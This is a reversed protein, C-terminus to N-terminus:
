PEDFADTSSRLLIMSAAALSQKLDSMKIHLADIALRGSPATGNRESDGQARLRLEKWESPVHLLRQATGPSRMRRVYGVSGRMM